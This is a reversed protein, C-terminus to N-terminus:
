AEFTDVSFIGANEDIQFIKCHPGFTPKGNQMSIVDLDRLSPAADLVSDNTYGVYRKLESLPNVNLRGVPM